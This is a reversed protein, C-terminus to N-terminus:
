NLDRPLRASLKIFPQISLYIQLYISSHIYFRNISPFRSLYIELMAEFGIEIRQILDPERSYQFIMYLMM